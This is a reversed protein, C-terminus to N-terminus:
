CDSLYKAMMAMNGFERVPSYASGSLFDRNHDIKINDQWKSRLRGHQKKAEPKIVLNQIQKVDTGQIGYM